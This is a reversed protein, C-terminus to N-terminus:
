EPDMVLQFSTPPLFWDMRITEKTPPVGNLALLRIQNNEVM